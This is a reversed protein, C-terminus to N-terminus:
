KENNKNREDKSKIKALRLENFNMDYVVRIDKLNSM